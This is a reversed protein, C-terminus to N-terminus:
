LRKKFAESGLLPPGSRDRSVFLVVVAIALGMYASINNKLLGVLAPGRPTSHKSRADRGAAAM